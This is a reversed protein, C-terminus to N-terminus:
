VLLVAGQGSPLFRGLEAAAEQLYQPMMDNQRSPRSERYRIRQRITNEFKTIGFNKDCRLWLRYPISIENIMGVSRGWDDQSCVELADVMVDVVPRLYDPRIGSKRVDLGVM